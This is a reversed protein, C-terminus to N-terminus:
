AACGQWASIDATTVPMKKRIHNLDHHRGSCNAYEMNTAAMLLREAAPVLVTHGSPLEEHPVAWMCRGCIGIASALWHHLQGTCVADHLRTVCVRLQRHLQRTARGTVTLSQWVM